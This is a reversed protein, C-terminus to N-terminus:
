GNREGIQKQIDRLVELISQSRPHIEVTKLKNNRVQLFEPLLAETATDENLDLQRQNDSGFGNGIQIFCNFATTVVEVKHQTKVGVCDLITDVKEVVDAIAVMMQTVTFGNRLDMNTAVNGDDRVELIAEAMSSAWGTANLYEAKFEQDGAKAADADKIKVKPEFIMGHAMMRVLCQAIEYYNKAETKSEVSVGPAMFKNSIPFKDKLLRTVGLAEKIDELEDLIEECCDKMPPKNGTPLLQPAEQKGVPIWDIPKYQRLFANAYRNFNPSALLNENYKNFTQLWTNINKGTDLFGLVGTDYLSFIRVKQEKPPGISAWWFYQDFGMLGGYNSWGKNITRRRSVSEGNLNNWESIKLTFPFNTSGVVNTEKETVEERFEGWSTIVPQQTARNYGYYENRITVPVWMLQETDPIKIGKNPDAPLDPTTPLKPPDPVKCGPDPYSRQAVIQGFISKTEVVICDRAEVRVDFGGVGLKINGGQTGLTVSQGAIGLSVSGGYDTSIGGSIVGFDLGLGIVGRSNVSAGGSVGTSGVKESIKLKQEKLDLGIKAM